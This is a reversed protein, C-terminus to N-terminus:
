LIQTLVNDRASLLLSSMRARDSSPNDVSATPDFATALRLFEGDAHHVAAIKSAFDISNIHLSFVRHKITRTERIATTQGM